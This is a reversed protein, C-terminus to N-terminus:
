RTLYMLKPLCLRIANLQSLIPVLPARIVHYQVKPNLLIPPFAQGHPSTTPSTRAPPSIFNLSADSVQTSSPKHVKDM